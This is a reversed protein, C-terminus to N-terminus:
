FLEKDIDSRFCDPINELLERLGARIYAALAPSVEPQQEIVPYTTIIRRGNCTTCTNDDGEDWGRARGRLQGCGDCTPCKSDVPQKNAVYRGTLRFTWDKTDLKGM